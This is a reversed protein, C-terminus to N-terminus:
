GFLIKKENKKWAKLHVPTKAVDMKFWTFLLHAYKKQIHHNPLSFNM